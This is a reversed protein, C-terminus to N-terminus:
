LHLRAARKRNSPKSKLAIIELRRRLKMCEMTWISTYLEGNVEAKRWLRMGKSDDGFSVKNTPSNQVEILRNRDDHRLIQNGRRTMNGNADYEYKTTFEQNILSLYRTKIKVRGREDDGFKEFSEADTVKSLEGKHVIYPPTTSIVYEYTEVQPTQDTDNTYLKM